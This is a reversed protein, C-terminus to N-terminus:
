KAIKRNTMRRPSQSSPSALSVRSCSPYPPFHFRSERRSALFIKRREGVGIQRRPLCVGERLRTDSNADAFPLRSIAVTGNLKQKRRGPHYQCRHAVGRGRSGKQCLDHRPRYIVVLFFFGLSLSLSLSPSVVSPTSSPGFNSLCSCVTTCAFPPHYLLFSLSM